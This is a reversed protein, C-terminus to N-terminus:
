AAHLILGCFIATLVTVVIAGGLWAVIPEIKIEMRLEKNMAM